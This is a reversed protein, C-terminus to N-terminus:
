VREAAYASNGGIQLSLLEAHPRHLDDFPSPRELRAVIGVGLGSALLHQQPDLRRAHAVAIHVDPVPVEVEAVAPLDREFRAADLQRERHSVLDGALDRGEAGIRGPDGDAVLDDGVRPDAAAFARYALLALLQEAQVRAGQPRPAGAAVARMHDHRVAAVQQRMRPHRLREGGGIGAGPDGGQRREFLGARLDAGVVMQHDDPRAADAAAGHM